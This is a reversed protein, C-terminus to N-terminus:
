HQQEKRIRVCTPHQEDKSLGPDDWGIPDPSPQPDMVHIREPPIHAHIRMEGQHFAEKPIEFGSLDVVIVTGGMAAAVEPRESLCIHKTPCGLSVTLEPRLGERLVADLDHTGHYGVM